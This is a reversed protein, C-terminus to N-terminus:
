FRILEQIIDKDELDEHLVFGPKELSLKETRRIFIYFALFSFHWILKHCSNSSHDPKLHGPFYYFSFSLLFSVLFAPLVCLLISPYPSFFLPLVSPSLSLPPCLFTLFSVLYSLLLFLFPFSPNLFSSGTFLYTHM